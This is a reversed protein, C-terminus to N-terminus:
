DSKLLNLVSTSSLTTYSLLALGANFKMQEVLFNTFETVYDTDRISSEAAQLNQSTVRLSALESELEYRQTSGVDVQLADLEAAAADIAEISAQAAEPSSLDIGSLASLEGVSGEGGDFLAAGNYSATAVAGNYYEVMSEAANAYAQQAEESNFGENAAGVALARLETLQNRYGTLNASATEYKHVLCSTNEIQQNLSAIQSRLQESIVLQAPGDSARNIKLGSSLKELSSCMNSYSRNIYTILSRNTNDDFINISV